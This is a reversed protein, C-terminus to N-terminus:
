AAQSMLRSLHSGRESLYRMFIQAYDTVVVEHVSSRAALAERYRPVRLLGEFVGFDGIRDFTDFLRFIPAFTADVLCFRDGDFYPGDGLHRELWAFRSTLDAAKRDFSTADPAMYFGYVDAITASGFEVWARHQARQLASSPHLPLEPSVEEIYECIVSTEFLAVDGIRLVPVKGLPSIQAFWGPKHALDIYTREYDLGKEALQIAARQTYPCLHNSILVYAPMRSETNFHRM